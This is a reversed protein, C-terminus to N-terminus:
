QAGYGPRARVDYRGGRVTVRLQRYRPEPDQSQPYFALTYQTRLDATIEEVARTLERDTRPFFVAAGSERALKQLVIRPNDVFSGDILEIRSGARRFLDEEKGSFYGIAFAQVQSEQVVKLVDALRRRSHQDTGDSIIALAQRGLHARRALAVGEVVADYLSTGGGLETQQIATEIRQRDTTFNEAVKVRDDFAIYFFESGARASRVLTLAAEKARELKAHDKMSDSHDFLIGLTIPQEENSFFEIKQQVGEDFVSFHEAKLGGVDRGRSDTVRVGVTVLAVQVRLTDQAIVFLLAILLRAM